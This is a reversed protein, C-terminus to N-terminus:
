FQIFDSDRRWCFLSQFLITLPSNSSFIFLRFGKELLVLISVPRFFYNFSYKEVDSDRRWCFLSQFVITNTSWNRNPTHRFGKELLVLISVLFLHLYIHNLNLTQIGEGVFCPNFGVHHGLDVVLVMTQIGEGVFCPNFCVRLSFTYSTRFITQIGEGVFCPNFGFKFM